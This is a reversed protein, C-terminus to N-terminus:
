RVQGFPKVRSKGLACIVSEPDTGAFNWGRFSFWFACVSITWWGCSVKHLNCIWSMGAGWRFICAYKRSYSGQGYIVFAALLFRERRKSKSLPIKRRSNQHLKNGCFMPIQETWVRSNHFNKRSSACWDAVFGVQYRWKPLKIIIALNETEVYKWRRHALLIGCVQWKQLTLVFVVTM